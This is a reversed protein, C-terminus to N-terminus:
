DLLGDERAKELAEGLRKAMGKLAPSADPDDLEFKVKADVLGDIRSLTTKYAVLVEPAAGKPQIQIYFSASALILSFAMFVYISKFMSTRQDSRDQEKRLLLYSLGALLFAIGVFGLRLIELVNLDELM